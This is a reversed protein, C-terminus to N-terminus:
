YGPLALLKAQVARYPSKSGLPSLVARTEVLNIIACSLILGERKGCKRQTIKHQKLVVNNNHM